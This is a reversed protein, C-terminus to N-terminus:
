LAVTAALMTNYVHLMAAYKFLNRCQLTNHESTHQMASIIRWLGIAIARYQVQSTLTSGPESHQRHQGRCRTVVRKQAEFAEHYCFEGDLECFLLIRLIFIILDCPPCWTNHFYCIGSDLPGVFWTIDYHCSMESHHYGSSMVTVSM